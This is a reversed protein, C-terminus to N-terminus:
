PFEGVRLEVESLHKPRIESRSFEVGGDCFEGAAVAAESPHLLAPAPHRRRMHRWRRKSLTYFHPRPNGGAACIAVAVEPPHLLTPAPQRRRRLRHLVEEEENRM